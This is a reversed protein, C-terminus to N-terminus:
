TSTLVEKVANFVMDVTIEKMCSMDDCKKKFCPSCELSARIVRHKSGYPGTKNPSTPGFIGIVVPSNMAAAVHMPGTDTSIVVSCKQYLYALEKLSSKGALNFAHTHMKSLITKILMTDSKSGTFIVTAQLEGKIRDALLAFRDMGWLKTKWKAIPNVAVLDTYNGVERLFDYIYRKDKYDTHIKGNWKFETAGLYRAIHLYRDLAHMHPEPIAVRENIFLSSAERGGNLAIKRRGRAIFTIIGSKLLGQLDIVIDYKKKKLEKIFKAVEKGVTYYEGKSIIRRIWGKRPFVILHDIAPHGEVIGAADEEVVWDIKSLPFRTKLVELLPLSHVVDGIASLKIILLNSNKYM